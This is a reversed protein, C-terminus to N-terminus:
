PAYKWGRRKLEDPLVEFPDPCTKWWHALDKLSEAEGDARIADVLAIVSDALARSARREEHRQYSMVTELEQPPYKERFDDAGQKLSDLDLDTKM